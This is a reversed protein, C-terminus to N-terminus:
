VDRITKKFSKEDAYCWMSDKQVVGEWVAFEQVPALSYDVKAFHPRNKAKKQKGRRVPCFLFDMQGSWGPCIVPLGSYAAEFLPLGFGEGHTLSALAKINKNVYLSHMEQDSM